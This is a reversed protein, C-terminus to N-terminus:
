PRLALMSGDRDLFRCLEAQEAWSGSAIWTEAYEFAPTVVDSYGWRRFFALLTDELTRREYAEGWFYDAVGAPIQGAGPRPMTEVTM